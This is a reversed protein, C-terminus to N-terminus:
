LTDSTLCKKQNWKFYADVVSGLLDHDREALDNTSGEELHYQQAGRVACFSHHLFVLCCQLWKGKPEHASEEGARSDERQCYQLSRCLLDLLSSLPHAHRSPGAQTAIKAGAVKRSRKLPDLFQRVFM